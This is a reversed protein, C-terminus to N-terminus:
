LLEKLRKEFREAINVWSYKEEVLVRANMRLRDQLKEDSLLEIIKESM